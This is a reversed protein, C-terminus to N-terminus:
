GAALEELAKARQSMSVPMGPGHQIFDVLVQVFEDPVDSQISHGVRYFVHLACNPIRQADKLNDARLFDRDGVLMLTPTALAAVREGLRLAVMSEWAADYADDQWTLNDEISREIQEDTRPRVLFGRIMLKQLDRNQRLAKMQARMGPDIPTIGDSSVPAVLVLRRLRDPHTVAFQMATGGGMSHGILTFTDLGLARTALHIDEAYQPIAYGSGPRDSDGAGRLDIAFARVNAPLRPLVEDWDRLSGTYGHVFVLPEDGSGHEVYHLQVDGARVYPM